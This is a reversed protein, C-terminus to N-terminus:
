SADMIIKLILQNLKKMTDLCTILRYAFSIDDATGYIPKGDYLSSLLQLCAEKDSGIPENNATYYIAQVVRDARITWPNDVYQMKMEYEQKNVGQAPGSKKEYYVIEMFQLAKKIVKMSSDPLNYYIDPLVQQVRNNSVYISVTRKTMDLHATVSESITYIYGSRKLTTDHNLIPKGDDMKHMLKEAEIILMATKIAYYIISNRHRQDFIVISNGEYYMTIYSVYTGKVTSKEYHHRAIGVGDSLYTGCCRYDDMSSSKHYKYPDCTVRGFTKGNHAYDWFTLITQLTTEM